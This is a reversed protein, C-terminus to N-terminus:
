IRNSDACLGTETIVLLAATVYKPRPKYKATLSSVKFKKHVISFRFTRIINIVTFNKM